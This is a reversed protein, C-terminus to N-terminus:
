GRRCASNRPSRPPWRTPPVSSPGSRWGPPWASGPFWWGSSSGWALASVLVLLVSLASITGFDRRFEMAPMQVAAAYLLPPLVGVLIWEPDLHLAPVIPMIGIAAGIVVLALAAPVRIRPAIETVAVILLIAGVVILIKEM